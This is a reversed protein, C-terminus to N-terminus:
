DAVGVWGFRGPKNVKGPAVPTGDSPEAVPSAAAM